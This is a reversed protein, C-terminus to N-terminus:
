FRKSDVKKYSKITGQPYYEAPHEEAITIIEEDLIIRPYIALKKEMDVATTMAPGFIKEKTHFLNGCTIAGRFLYGKRLIECSLFLIDKLINFVGSKEEKLYSVAVCDSFHSVVKSTITTVSSTNKNLENIDHLVNLINETETDVEKNEKITKNIAASFGIIDIYALIREEYM